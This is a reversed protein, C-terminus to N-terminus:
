NLDILFHDFIFLYIYLYVFYVFYIFYSKHFSSIYYSLIKNNNKNNTLEKTKKPIGSTYKQIKPTNQIIFQKEFANIPNVTM